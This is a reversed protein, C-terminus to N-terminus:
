RGITPDLDASMLLLVFVAERGTIPADARTYIGSM